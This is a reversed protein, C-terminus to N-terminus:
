HLERVAGQRGCKREAMAALGASGSEFIEGAGVPTGLGSTISARSRM